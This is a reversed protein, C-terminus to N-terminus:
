TWWWCRITRNDARAESSLRSFRADDCGAFVCAGCAGFGDADVDDVAQLIVADRGYRVRSKSFELRAFLLQHFKAALRTALRSQYKPFVSSALSRIHTCRAKSGDHHKRPSRAKTADAAAADGEGPKSYVRCDGPAPRHAHTSSHRCAKIGNGGGRLIAALGYSDLPQAV